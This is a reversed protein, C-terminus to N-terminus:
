ERGLSKLRANLERLTKELIKRYRPNEAKELLNIVHTRSLLLSEKQRLLDLEGPTLRPGAPADSRQELSEIQSEISKSEWGRAM